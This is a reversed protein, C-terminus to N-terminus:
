SHPEIHILYRVKTIARTSGLGFLCIYIVALIYRILWTAVYLTSGNREVRGVITLKGLSINMHEKTQHLSVIGIFKQFIFCCKGKNNCSASSEATISEAEM